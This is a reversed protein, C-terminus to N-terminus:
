SPILVTDIVHIVGNSAEIDTALISAENVVARGDRLDFRVETGEATGADGIAIADKAYVRGPIVHYKLIDALKHRNRRELLSNITDQGLAQFAEDNPALVTYPTDGTLAPVLGAAKAAALLTGFSGANEAVEAINRTEPMIVSDIVHIIGNSTEIDTATVKAGDVFVNGNRVRIDLRQGNATTANTLKVVDKATVRGPVVHYTLVSQLKGKASPELLGTITGDPLRDFAADSPAFVTFPGDGKLVDVLDAAKVAAVLTNFDGAAVATDVIDAGRRHHNQEHSATQITVTYGDHKAEWNGSSCQASATGAVLASLVIASATHRLAM